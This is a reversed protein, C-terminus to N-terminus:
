QGRFRGNLSQLFDVLASFRRAFFNEEAFSLVVFPSSRLTADDRNWWAMNEDREATLKCVVFALYVSRTRPPDIFAGVFCSSPETTNEACPAM